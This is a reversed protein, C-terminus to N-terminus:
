TRQWLRKVGAVMLEARDTHKFRSRLAGRQDILYIDTTHSVHYGLASNSKEIEYKAGYQKVVADLEEKKGTLAVTQASFYQVYERLVQTTDRQPDVSIFVALAKERGPGLQKFVSNIRSLIVPCAETCSTYGFFLLVVKGRQDALSFKGGHHDTLTFDGGVATESDSQRWMATTMLACVFLPLLMRRYIM